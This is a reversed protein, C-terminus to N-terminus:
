AGALLRRISTRGIKLQRAIAAQSLKKQRAHANRANEQRRAAAPRPSPGGEPGIGTKVHDPLMDREFEAFVALM